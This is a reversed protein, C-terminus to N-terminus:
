AKLAGVGRGDEPDPPPLALTLAEIRPLARKVMARITTEAFPEPLWAGIMYIGAFSRFFSHGAVTPMAGTIKGGRNLPKTLSDFMQTLEAGLRKEEDSNLVEGSCAWVIGRADVVLAQEAGIEDRLTCLANILDTYEQPLM